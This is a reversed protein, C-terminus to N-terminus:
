EVPINRKQAFEGLISRIKMSTKVNTDYGVKKLGDEFEFAIQYNLVKMSKLDNWSIVTAPKWFHNKLEIWEDTVKIKRSYKSSDSFAFKSYFAQAIGSILMLIGLSIRYWTYQDDIIHLIGNAFFLGSM